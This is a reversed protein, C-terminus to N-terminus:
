SWKNIKKKLISAKIIRNNKSDELAKDIEENYDKISMPELGKKILEAKTKHLMKELGSIIDENQLRLFEQVFSIKRAELDM